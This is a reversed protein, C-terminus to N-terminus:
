RTLQELFKRSIRWRGHLTRDEVTFAGSTLVGSLDDPDAKQGERRILTALVQTIKEMTGRLAAAESANRCYATMRTEFTGPSAAASITFTAGETYELAKVFLDSAKM